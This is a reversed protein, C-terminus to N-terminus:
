NNNWEDMTATPTWTTIIIIYMTQERYRGVKFITCLIERFTSRPKNQMKIWRTCYRYLILFIFTVVAAIAYYVHTPSTDQHFNQKCLKPLSFFYFLIGIFGASYLKCVIVIVILSPWSDHDITLFITIGVRSKYSHNIYRLMNSHYETVLVKLLKRKGSQITFSVFAITKAYIKKGNVRIM